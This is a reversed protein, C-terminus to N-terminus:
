LGINQVDEISFVVHYEIAREQCIKQFEKQGPSLKGGPKKVELGVFVSGDLILNIDPVGPMSYKPAKRHIKKVPDYVGINNSRWFFHKKYALYECITNLVDSESM